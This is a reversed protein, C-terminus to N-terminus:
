HTGVVYTNMSFYSFFVKQKLFLLFFVVICSYRRLRDFQMATM